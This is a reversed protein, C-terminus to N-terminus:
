PNLRKINWDSGLLEYIFRDHLRHPGGQWFEVSKPNLGFGGWHPPKPPNEGFKEQAKLFAKELTERSDLDESQDSAWAGLKSLVPRSNFYEEAEQDERKAVEGTIMVQRQSSFWPFHLCANSNSSLHKAKRSNYNTYFIFRGEEMGKLLVARASPRGKEDVTSLSCANPDYIKALVADNLWDTFQELPCSRMASRRLPECDYQERMSQLQNSLENM